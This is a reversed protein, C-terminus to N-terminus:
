ILLAEEDKTIYYLHYKLHKSPTKMGCEYKAITVPHIGLKEALTKQTYGHAKRIEALTM